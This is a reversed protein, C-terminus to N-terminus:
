HTGPHDGANKSQQKRKNVNKSEQAVNNEPANESVTAGNRRSLNDTDVSHSAGEKNMYASVIYLSRAKTVPAAEVVYYTGNVKKSLM